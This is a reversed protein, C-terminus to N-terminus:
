FHSIKIVIPASEFAPPFGVMLSPVSNVRIPPNESKKAGERVTPNGGKIAKYHLFEFKLVKPAFGMKHLLKLPKSLLEFGHELYDKSFEGSVSEM